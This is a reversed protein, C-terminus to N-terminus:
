KGIAIPVGFHTSPITHLQYVQLADDEVLLLFFVVHMNLASYVAKFDTNRIRTVECQMETLSLVGM